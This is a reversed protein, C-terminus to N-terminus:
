FLENFMADAVADHSIAYNGSKVAARLSHVLETRIDPSNLALSNLKSLDSHKSSLKTEDLQALSPQAGSTSPRNLKAEALPQLNGFNADIRM